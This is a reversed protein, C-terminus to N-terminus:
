KMESLIWPIYLTFQKDLRRIDDLQDYPRIDSHVFQYKKNNYVLEKQKQVEEDQRTLAYKDEHDQPKRYGMLLKEVNWRNHEVQAMCEIQQEEDLPHDEKKMAEFSAMKCPISEIAYLNSWKLSVKLKMWCDNAKQRIEEKPTEDLVKFDLFRIAPYEATEYLYNYLQARCTDTESFFFATEYMGFPYLNAYKQTRKEEHVTGDDAIIHFKERKDISGDETPLVTHANRLETVFTDASDQRIFVPVDTDYVAEPMNMAIAFNDRQNSMALFISLYAQKDNAWRDIENQIDASFVDGKIFEFDIDLFDAKEGSFRTPPLVECTHENSSLDRYTCSQIEFFSRNRTRFLRMEKDANLDIFTIRTKINKTGNPFHLTHAAEKAFAVAFTSTGVFVLHVYHPDNYGIGNRYVAPYTYRQDGLSSFYRRAVFVQKAWGVYYNYPIFNIHLQKAKEFIDACQFASYTDIDEFVCFIRKPLSAIDPASLYNFISEVCEVNVADHNPLSRKGVVYIEKAAELQIDSYYERAIRHGYYVVIRDFYERKVAKRLRERIKVSPVASLVLIYAQPDRRFIDAIVSPVMDDYGMIVYHGSSRYRSVGYTYDEKRQAIWNSLVSIIVGNFIFLGVLYTFSSVFLMWGHIAEDGNGDGWYLSNLANADILLYLPLLWPKVDHAACFERWAAGSCNLFVYSILWTLFLICLIWTFQKWLSGTLMRDFRLWRNRLNTSM